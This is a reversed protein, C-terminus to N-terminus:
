KRAEHEPIEGSLNPLNYPIGPISGLDATHLVLVKGATSDSQGTTLHSAMGLEARPGHALILALISYLLHEWEM